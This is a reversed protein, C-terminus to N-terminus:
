LSDVSRLSAVIAAEAQGEFDRVAAEHARDLGSFNSLTSISSSTARFSGACGLAGTAPDFAYATGAFVGPAISDRARDLEPMRMEDARVIVFAGGLANLM